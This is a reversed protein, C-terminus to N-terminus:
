RRLRRLRVRDLEVGVALGSALVVDRPLARWRVGDLYVDIRAATADGVLRTVQPM